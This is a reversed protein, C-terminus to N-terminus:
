QIPKGRLFSPIGIEAAFFVVEETKGGFNKKYVIAGDMLYCLLFKM